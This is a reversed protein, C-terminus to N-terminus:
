MFQFIGEVNKREKEDESNEYLQLILIVLGLGLLFVGDCVLILPIKATPNLLLTLGWNDSVQSMDAIVFLISKPIIPTWTRLVRKGDSYVGITFQEIFNNSKGIGVHNFPPALSHFASQGSNGAQVIIKKDSLRTTVMRMAASNVSSFTAEDTVMRVKLFYNGKDINNYIARIKRGGGTDTVLLIDIM